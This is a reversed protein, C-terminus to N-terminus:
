EWVVLLPISFLSLISVPCSLSFCLCILIGLVLPSLHRVICQLVCNLLVDLLFCPIQTSLTSDRWARFAAVCPVVGKLGVLSLAFSCDKEKWFEYCIIEKLGWGETKFLYFCVKFRQDLRAIEGQLVDPIDNPTEEVKKKKLPPPLM